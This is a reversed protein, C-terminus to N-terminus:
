KNYSLSVYELELLWLDFEVLLIIIVVFKIIVYGKLDRLPICQKLGM